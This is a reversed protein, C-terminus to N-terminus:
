FKEINDNKCKSVHTHVTQAVEGAQTEGVAAPYFSNRGRTGCNKQPSFMLSLFFLTKALKLYLFSCLSIGLMAEM